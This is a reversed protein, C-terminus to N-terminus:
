FARLCYGTLKLDLTGSQSGTGGSLWLSNALYKVAKISNRDTFVVNFLSGVASGGYAETLGMDIVDGIAIGGDAEESVAMIRTEVMSGPVGINHQGTAEWASDMTRSGLDVEAYCHYAYNVINSVTAGNSQAQGVYVRLKDVWTSGNYVKGKYTAPSFWFQGSAPAGPPAMGYHPALSSVGTTFVADLDFVDAQVYLYNTQSDTTLTWPALDGDDNISAVLNREGAVDHGDAITFIFPDSSVGADLSLEAAGTASLFDAVYNVDLPGIIACQRVPVSKSCNVAISQMTKLPTMVTADNTGAEAEARDSLEAIGRRTETASRNTLLVFRTGDYMMSTFGSIDGAQLPTASGWTTSTPKVGLGAVDITSAGTNPNAANFTIIMGAFYSTPNATGAYEGVVYADAAGTDTYLEARVSYNLWEFFQSSIATDAAANAAGGALTMAREFFAIMDNAWEKDLYSGDGSGPSTRNKFAGLPHYADAATFRGPYFLDRRRAM